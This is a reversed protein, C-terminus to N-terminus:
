RDDFMFLDLQRPIRRGDLLLYPAAVRSSAGAARLADLSRIRGERRMKLLRRASLPGIGPVRVLEEPPARNV